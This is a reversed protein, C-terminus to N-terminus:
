KKNKSNKNNIENIDKKITEFVDGGIKVGQELAKNANNMLEEREPQEKKWQQQLTKVIKGAKKGTKKMFLETKKSVAKAVSKIKKTTIKNKM